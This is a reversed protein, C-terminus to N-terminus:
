EIGKGSDSVDLIDQPYPHFVTQSKLYSQDFRIVWAYIISIPVSFPVKQSSYQELVELFYAKESTSIEKKFFGFLHMLMNINRGSKMCYAFTSKLTQGYQMIVDKIPSQELNAVIKGLTKQNTQNYAMLLYKNDRHFQILAHMSNADIVKDYESLCFLHTLFKERIQYNTLRGEDEIAYEDYHSLIASGFLGKTKGISPSKGHTKYLKVDKIGCSPSRSKLIFGHIRMAKISDLYNPIFADMKDTVDYGSKSDILREGKESRIIRIANRPVGLGIEMEPCVPIFNVYSEIRKVFKDNIQSGDYRCHGHEICKSIVINPKSFEQRM